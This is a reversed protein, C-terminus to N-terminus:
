FTLFDESHATRFNSAKWIHFAAKITELQTGDESKKKYFFM